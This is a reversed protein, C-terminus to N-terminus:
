GWVLSGVGVRGRRQWVAHRAGAACRRAHWQRPHVRGGVRPQGAAADPKRDRQGGQDFGRPHPGAGCPRDGDDPGVRVDCPAGRGRRAGRWGRTAAPAGRDGGAGARGGCGPVRHHQGPPACRRGGAAAAGRWVRLGRQSGLDARRSVCWPAPPLPPPLSPPPRAAHLRPPVCWVGCLVACTSIGGARVKGEGAAWVWVLRRGVRSVRNVTSPVFPGQPSNRLAVAGGPCMPPEVTCIPNFTFTGIVTAPGSADAAVWNPAGSIMPTVSVWSRGAAIGPPGFWTVSQSLPLSNITANTAMFSLGVWYAGSALTTNGVVLTAMSLNFAMVSPGQRSIAHAPLDYQTLIQAGPAGMGGDTSPLVVVSVAAPPDPFHVFATLTAISRPVADAAIILATGLM